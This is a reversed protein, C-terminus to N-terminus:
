IFQWTKMIDALWTDLEKYTTVEFLFHNHLFWIERTQGVRADFGFFTIGPAGDIVTDHPDLKVDSPEDMNFREPTIETENTPEVSIDFGPEGAAGQFLVTLVVGREHFEQPPIQAPYNVSFGYDKNRYEKYVDSVTSPLSALKAVGTSTALSVTTTAFTADVPEGSSSNKLIFFGGILATFFCLSIIWGIYPRM